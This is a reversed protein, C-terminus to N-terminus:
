TNWTQCGSNNRRIGTLTLHFDSINYAQWGDEKM